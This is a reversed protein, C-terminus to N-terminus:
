GAILMTARDAVRLLAEAGVGFAVTAVATLTLATSLPASARATGGALVGFESLASAREGLAGRL